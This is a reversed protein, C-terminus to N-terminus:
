VSAADGDDAQEALAHLPSGNLPTERIAHYSKLKVEGQLASDWQRVIIHKTWVIPGTLRDNRHLSMHSMEDYPLDGYGVSEPEVKSALNATSTEVARMASAIDAYAGRFFVGTERGEKTTYLFVTYVKGVIM